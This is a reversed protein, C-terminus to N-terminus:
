IPEYKTPWISTRWHLSYNPTLDMSPRKRYTVMHMIVRRRQQLWARLVIWAGAHLRPVRAITYNHFRHRGRYHKPLSCTWHGYASSGPFPRFDCPTM